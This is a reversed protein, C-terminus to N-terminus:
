INLLEIMGTNNEYRDDRMCLIFSCCFLASGAVARFRAISCPHSEKHAKARLQIGCHMFSGKIHQEYSCEGRKYDKYRKDAFLISATHRIEGMERCIKGPFKKTWSAPYFVSRTATM